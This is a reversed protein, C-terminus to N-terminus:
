TTAARKTHGSACGGAEGTTASMDRPIAALWQLGNFRL